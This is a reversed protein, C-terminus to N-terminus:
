VLRRGMCNCMAVTKPWAQGSLIQPFALPVCTMKAVASGKSTGVFVFEVTSGALPCNKETHSFRSWGCNEWGVFRHLMYRRNCQIWSNRSCSWEMMGDIRCSGDYVWLDIIKRQAPISALILGVFLTLCGAKQFATVGALANLRKLTRFMIAMQEGTPSVSSTTAWLWFTLCKFGWFFCLLIETNKQFHEGKGVVGSGDSLCQTPGRWSRPVIHASTQFMSGLEECTEDM